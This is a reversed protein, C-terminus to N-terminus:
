KLDERKGPDWRGRGTSQIFYARFEDIPFDEGYKRTTGEIQKIIRSEYRGKNWQTVIEVPIGQSNLSLIVDDATYGSYSELGHIGILNWSPKIDVPVAGEVLYGFVNFTCANHSRIVYGEGPTIVFDETKAGDTRTQYAKWASDYRAVLTVDCGQANMTEVFVSAKSMDDSYFPFAMYNFGETLNVQFNDAVKKLTIEIGPTELFEENEDLVGNENTDLFLIIAGQTGESVTTNISTTLSYGEPIVQFEGSGEFIVLGNNGVSVTKEGAYVVNTLNSGDSPTVPILSLVYDKPSESTEAVEVALNQITGNTNVAIVRVTEKTKEWLDTEAIIATDDIEMYASAEYADGPKQLGVVVKSCTSVGTTGTVDCYLTVEGSSLALSGTSAYTPVNTDPGVEISPEGETRKFTGMNSSDGSGPEFTGVYVQGRSSVFKGSQKVVVTTEGELEKLSKDTTFTGQVDQGDMKVTGSLKVHADPNAVFVGEESKGTGMSDGLSADYNSIYDLTTSSTRFEGSYTTTPTTFSGEYSIVTGSYQKFTGSSPPLQAVRTTGELTRNFEGSYTRGMSDSMEIDAVVSGHEDTTFVESSTRNNESFTVRVQPDVCTKGPGVLSSDPCTCNCSDVCGCKAGWSIKEEGCNVKKIVPSSCSDVSIKDNTAPSVPQIGTETQEQHTTQYAPQAVSCAGTDNCSGDVEKTCFLGSGNKYVNRVCTRCCSGAANKTACYEEPYAYTYGECAAYVPTSIASLVSFNKNPSTANTVMANITYTPAPANYDFRTVGFNSGTVKTDTVYVIEFNQLNDDTYGGYASGDAFRANAIDIYWGNDENLLSSVPLSAPNDGGSMYSYVVVNERRGENFLVTGYSQHPDILDSLEPFTTVKMELLNVEGFDVNLAAQEELAKNGYWRIGNGIMYYYETEPKLGYVTVYHLYYNGKKNVKVKFNLENANVIISEGDSYKTSKAREDRKEGASLEAANVDRDDFFKTSGISALPGPLFGKKDRVLVVGPEQSDSVWSVTFSTATLNTLRINSVKSNYKFFYLYGWVGVSVVVLGLLIAWWWKKVFEWVTSFLNSFVNAM